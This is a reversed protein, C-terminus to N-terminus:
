AILRDFIAIILCAIEIKPRNTAIIISQQTDALTWSLKRNIGIRPSQEFHIRLFHTNDIINAIRMLVSSVFGETLIFLLTVPVAQTARSLAFAL